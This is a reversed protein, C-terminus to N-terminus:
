GDADDAVGEAQACGIESLLGSTGSSTGYGTPQKAHHHAEMTALRGYRFYAWVILVTGFLASVPWVISQCSGLHERAPEM